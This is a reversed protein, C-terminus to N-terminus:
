FVHAKFLEPETSELWTESNAEAAEALNEFHEALVQMLARQALPGEEAAHERLTSAVKRYKGAIGM